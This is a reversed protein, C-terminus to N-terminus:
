TRVINPGSGFRAFRFMINLNMNLPQRCQVNKEPEPEVVKPRVQVLGFGPWDLIVPSYTENYDFGPHQVCGKAVLRAKYKM